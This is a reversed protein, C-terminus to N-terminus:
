THINTNAYSKSEKSTKKTIGCTACCKVYEEINKRMEIWHYKDKILDFIKQASRHGASPTDHCLKLVTSRLHRPVILRNHGKKNTFALCGEIMKLNDKKNYYWRIVGPERMLEEVTPGRDEQLIQMLTKLDSDKEQNIRVQQNTIQPQTIGTTSMNHITEYARSLADACENLKGPKYVIDYKFEGLIELWKTMPCM